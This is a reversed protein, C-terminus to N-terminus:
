IYNFLIVILCHMAELSYDQPLLAATLGRRTIGPLNNQSHREPRWAGLKTLVDLFETSCLFMASRPQGETPFKVVGLAAKSDCKNIKTRECYLLRINILLHM